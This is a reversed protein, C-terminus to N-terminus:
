DANPNSELGPFARHWRQVVEDLVKRPLMATLGYSSGWMEPPQLGLADLTRGAIRWAESREAIGEGVVTATGLDQYVALDASSPLLARARRAADPADLMDLVLHLEIHAGERTRRCDKWPLGEADLADLFKGAEGETSRLRMPLAHHDATVAVARGTGPHPRRTVVTGTGEGSTAGARLTIGHRRAYDIAAPALVKAGRLGMELIEGHDLSELKRAGPVLRPDATYVGDVDSLIECSDAQLAAALAIATTDSGGRGLTTVEKRVSVGAFGGVIVIRQQQLAEVVRTPRVEIIRAQNHDATTIIGAQSGTFSVAEFGRDRLVMALLAMSVREGVSILMDLERRHPADSVERALALLGDTTRGMASVVVVPLVGSQRTAVVRDAVIRMKEPTAVSSGGYKQVVINM